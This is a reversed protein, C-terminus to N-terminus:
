HDFHGHSTKDWYFPNKVLEWLAKYSALAALPYYVHLTPVWLLSLKHATRRLAFMGMAITVAESALLLWFTSYILNAPLLDAVPHPLGLPLVWFSWLVPVLLAQSLTCLFLIQFGAFKRPGLQRWLLAPDRMHVGYTVM